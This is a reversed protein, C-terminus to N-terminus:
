VKKFIDALQAFKSKGGAGPALLQETTPPLAPHGRSEVIKRLIREVQDAPFEQLVAFASRALQQTFGSENAPREPKGLANDCGRILTMVDNIEEHTLKTGDEKEWIHTPILLAYQTMQRSDKRTGRVFASMAAGRMHMPKYGADLHTNLREFQQCFLGGERPVLFGSAKLAEIPCCATEIARGTEIKGMEEMGENAFKQAREDLLGIPSGAKAQYGLDVFLRILAFTASVPGVAAKLARYEVWSEHDLPLHLNSDM